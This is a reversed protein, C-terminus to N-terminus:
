LVARITQALMSFCTSLGVVFSIFRHPQRNSSVYIYSHAIRSALFVRFHWLAVTPNPNTAVYLLGLVVFPVVNEVDNSHAGRVRDVQPNVYSRYKKRYYGTLPAMLFTKGLALSGYLVLSSFSENDLTFPSSM